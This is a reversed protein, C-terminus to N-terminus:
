LAMDVCHMFNSCIFCLVVGGCVMWKGTHHYSRKDFWGWYDGVLNLDLYYSRVKTKRALVKQLARESLMFPAGGPPGSLVKQSGSYVCDVGLADAHFPVGGSPLPLWQRGISAFAYWHASTGGHLHQM